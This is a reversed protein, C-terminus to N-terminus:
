PSNLCETQFRIILKIPFDEVIEGLAEWFLDLIPNFSDFVINDM